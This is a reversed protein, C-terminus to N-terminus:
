RRVVSRCGNRVHAMESWSLSLGQQYRLVVEACGPDIELNRRASASRPRAPLLEAALPESPAEAQVAEAPVPDAAAHDALPADPTPPSAARNPLAPAAVRPLTPAVVGTPVAGPALGAPATVEAGPLGTSFGVPPVVAAQMGGGPPGHLIRSPPLGHPSRAPPSRPLTAEAPTPAPSGNVATPPLPTLPTLPVAVTNAGVLLGGAFTAVLALGAMGWRLARWRGPHASATPPEPDSWDPRNTLVNAVAEPWGTRTIGLGPQAALGGELLPRVLALGTPEVRVHVVPLMGSFAYAFGSGHLAARLRAEARPTAEPAVDVLALGHGPHALVYCGSPDTGARAQGLWLWGAPLAAMLRRAEAAVPEQVM